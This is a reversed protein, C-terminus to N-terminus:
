RAGSPRALAMQKNAFADQLGDFVPGGVESLGQTIVWRKRSWTIGHRTHRVLVLRAEPTVHYRMGEPLNPAYDRFDISFLRIGGFLESRDTSRYDTFMDLDKLYKAAESLGKRVVEARADNRELHALKESLEAMRSSAISAIEAPSRREVGM